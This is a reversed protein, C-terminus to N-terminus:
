ITNQKNIAHLINTKPGMSKGNNRANGTNYGSFDSIHSEMLSTKILALHDEMSKRTIIVQYCLLGLLLVGVLAHTRPVDPQKEGIYTKIEINHLKFTSLNEKKLRPIVIQKRPENVTGNQTIFTALLHTQKLRNQLLLTADFNDSVGQILGFGKELRISQKQKTSAAAAPIKFRCIEDYSATVGYEHLHDILQKKPVILGLSVQLMFVNPTVVGTIINVFKSSILSLFTITTCCSKFM